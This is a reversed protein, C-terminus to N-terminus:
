RVLDVRRLAAVKNPTWITGSESEQWRHDRLKAFKLWIGGETLGEVRAGSELENLQRLNM